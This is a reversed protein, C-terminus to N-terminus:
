GSSTVKVDLDVMPFLVQTARAQQGTAMLRRATAVMAFEDTPKEIMTLYVSDATKTPLSIVPNRHGPVTLLCTMSWCFVQIPKGMLECSPTHKELRVM